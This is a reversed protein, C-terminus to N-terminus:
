CDYELSQAGLIATELAANLRPVEIQGSRISPKAHWEALETKNLLDYSVLGYRLVFDSIPWERRVLTSLAAVLMSFAQEPVFDLKEWVSKYVQQSEESGWEPSM